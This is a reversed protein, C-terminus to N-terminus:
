IVLQFQILSIQGSSFEHNNLKMEEYIIRPEKNNSLCVAYVAALSLVKALASLCM